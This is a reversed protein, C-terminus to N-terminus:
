PGNGLSRTLYAAARDVLAVPVVMKWGDATRHFDVTSQHVVTDDVHQWQTQLTVDDPGQATEGMVEMGGVPHRSGSLIFAMLKEPTDYEATLGAPLVQALAELKARAEPGLMIAATEQALDATRAAYLQTAFAARPTARGALGLSLVPTLGAALPTENGSNPRPTPAAPAGSPAAARLRLLEAHEQRLRALEAAQGSLRANEARLNAVEATQGRLDTVEQELRTNVRHQLVLGTIGVAAV